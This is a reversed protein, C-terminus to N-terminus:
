KWAWVSMMDTGGGFQEHNRCPKFYEVRQFLGRGDGTKENEKQLMGHGGEALLDWYVGSLGWPPGPADLPKHLPFELCVLVGKPALLQRIRALWPERMEPLLACLFTYDFILDFRDGGARAEWERSFFDGEIIKISGTSRSSKHSNGFNYESPERLEAAAYNEAVECGKHSVELGHVEFGHLALMAVDYGKGCGPVLARPRRGSQPTALVSPRSELWDIMAQSPQGRDWMDSHDSEWLEVWGAAQQNRDRSSFHSVVNVPKAEGSNGDAM